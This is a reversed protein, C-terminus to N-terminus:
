ATTTLTVASLATDGTNSLTVGRQITDGPVVGTAAVSLRNAATGSAGLAITVNGSSVSETASTTSTFSGFTGLGAAGAAAALLATSAILKGRTTTLRLSM